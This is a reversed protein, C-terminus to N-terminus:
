KVGASTRLRAYVNCEWYDAIHSGPPAIENIRRYDEDTFEVDIANLSSELQAVSRPGTIPSTIGTQNMVWALAFEALTVGKEAALPKLAEVRDITAGNLRDNFETFRGDTPFRGAKTYKGSLVGGGIPAWPIIAIGYRKCTWVLEDEIRRDFLNYPPQESILKTWGHRECLANAEAILVPAWKSTGIYRVKGQRVLTDLAGFLEYLDTEPYMFHIQYLDLHDTRLRRLSDECERIIHYRSCMGRNVADKDMPGSFKSALVISDRKGNKALARGVIEESSGNNYINATDILNIGADIAHEIIRISEKEDARDGFAM